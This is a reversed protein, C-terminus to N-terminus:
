CNTLAQVDNYLVMNICVKINDPNALYIKVFSNAYDLRQESRGQLRCQGKEYFPKLDVFTVVASELSPAQQLSNDPTPLTQSNSQQLGNSQPYQLPVNNTKPMPLNPQMSLNPHPTESMLQGFNSPENHTPLVPMSVTHKSTLSFQPKVDPYPVADPLNNSAMPIPPQVPLNMNQNELMTLDIPTEM